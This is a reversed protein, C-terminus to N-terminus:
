GERRALVSMFEGQERLKPQMLYIVERLTDKIGLASAVYAAARRPTFQRRAAPDVNVPSGGLGTELREVAFGAKSLAQRITDTSFFSVHGPLNYMSWKAGLTEAAKGAVNCTHISILGGQKLLARCARLASVPDAIHEIVSWMLVVDFTEPEFPNTEIPGCHVQLGFRSTAFSADDRSVEVGSPVWGYERALALAYGRACGVDLLRRGQTRAALDQLLERWEARKVEVFREYGGMSEYYGAECAEQEDRRAFMFGCQRCRRMEVADTLPTAQLCLTGCLPCLRGALSDSGTAITECSTDM